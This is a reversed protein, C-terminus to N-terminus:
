TKEALGLPNCVKFSGVLRTTVNRSLSGGNEGEKGSEWYGGSDSTLFTGM